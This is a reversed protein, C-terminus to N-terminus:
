STYLSEYYYLIFFIYFAENPIIEHFYFAYHILAFM